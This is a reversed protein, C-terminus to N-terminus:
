IPLGGNIHFWRHIIKKTNHFKTVPDTDHHEVLERQRAKIKDFLENTAEILNLMMDEHTKPHRIM